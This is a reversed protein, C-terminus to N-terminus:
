KKNEIYRMIKQEKVAKMEKLSYKRIYCKLKM